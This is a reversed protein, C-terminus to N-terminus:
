RGPPGSVHGGDDAGVAEVARGGDPQREAALHGRGPDAAAFRAGGFEVADPGLEHAGAHRGRQGHPARDEGARAAQGAQEAPAARRPRVAGVAPHGGGDPDAQAAVAVEGAVVAVLVGPDDGQEARLRGALAGVYRHQDVLQAVPHAPRVAGRDGRHAALALAAVALHGLVQVVPQPQRLRGSRGREAEVVRQQVPQAQRQAAPHAPVAAPVGRQHEEVRGALVEAAGLGHVAVRVVQGGGVPDDQQHVRQLHPGYAVLQRHVGVQRQGGHLGRRLLDGGVQRRLQAGVPPAGRPAPDGRGDRDRHGLRVGQEGQDPRVRWQAAVGAVRAAGHVVVVPQRHVLLHARQEVAPVRPREEALQLPVERLQRQEPERREAGRRGCM